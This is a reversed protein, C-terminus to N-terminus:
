IHWLVAFFFCLPLSRYGRSANGLPNFGSGAPERVPVLTCGDPQLNRQRISCHAHARVPLLSTGILIGNKAREQMGTAALGEAKQERWKRGGGRRNGNSKHEREERLQQQEYAFASGDTVKEVSWYEEERVERLSERKEKQKELRESQRDIKRLM